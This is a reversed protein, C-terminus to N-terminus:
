KGHHWPERQEALISGQKLSSTEGHNVQRAIDAALESGTVSIQIRNNSRAATLTQHAMHTNQNELSLCAPLVVIVLKRGPMSDSPKCIVNLASLTVMERLHFLFKM